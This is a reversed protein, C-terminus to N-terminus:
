PAPLAARIAAEVDAPTIAGGQPLAALVKEVLDDTGAVVGAHAGQKAADAIATLEAPDLDVKAAIARVTLLIENFAGLASLNGEATGDNDALGRGNYQWPFARMQNETFAMDDEEHALTAAPIADGPVYHWHWPENELEAAFGFTAAHGILWTLIRGRADLVFDCALGLGHNSTGPCAAIANGPRLWFTTGNCTKTSTHAIFTTSYRTTFANQQVALPRYSDVASTVRLTLGTAQKAVAAMAILSRMATKCMTLVPASGPQVALASSPLNGNHHLQGALESPFAAIETIPLDPM